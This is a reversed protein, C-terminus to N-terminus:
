RGGLYTLLFTASMLSILIALSVGVGAWAISKCAKMNFMSVSNTLRKLEQEFRAFEHSNM